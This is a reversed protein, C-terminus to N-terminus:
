RALSPPLDVRREPVLELSVHTGREGGADLLRRLRAPDPAPNPGTAVVVVRGDRYQTSFVRWDADEAWRTAITAVRETTLTHAVYRRGSVVLPVAVMVMFAIILVVPYRSEVARSVPGSTNALAARRVRYLAMVVLGTFLIAAVNTLFLLLAGRAQDRQGAELTLGVVALPPVLSIAIAVGPLADSVDSRVLAFSGVAGTALAAVLDVTRPSIRATVQSNGPAVVDIASLAGLLWAVLIVALAGTVLLVVSRLLNARDGIVIALVVGLIPTMLPAVIMAGIVVATSDAIVGAAAILAALLLLVWFRTLRDGTEPGEFFLADRM